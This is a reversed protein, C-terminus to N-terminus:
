VDINYRKIIRAQLARLQGQIASNARESRDLSWNPGRSTGGETLVSTKADAQLYPQGSWLSSLQGAVCNKGAKVVVLRGVYNLLGQIM